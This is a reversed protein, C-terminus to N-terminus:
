ILLNKCNMRLFHGGVRYCLFFSALLALREGFRPCGWVSVTMMIMKNKKSGAACLLVFQGVLRCLCLCILGSVSWWWKDKLPSLDFLSVKM